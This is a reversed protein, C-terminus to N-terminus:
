QKRYRGIGTARYDGIGINGPGVEGGTSDETGIGQRRVEQVGLKTDKVM